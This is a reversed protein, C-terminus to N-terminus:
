DTGRVVVRRYLAAGGGECQREFGALFDQSGRNLRALIDGGEAEEEILVWGAHRGPDTLSDAWTRGLGEHVYQRLTMGVRATEHMYPALSAMSALIPAQDYHEMMCETLRQRGVENPRDRQAELVMPARGSLPPTEVLAILVVAAAALTRHRPLLGIGVGVFAAVAMTLPVMYRVRFPHGTWFAFLPLAVGATLAFLMLLHPSERTRVMTMVSAIAGVVGITLMADGNVRRLGSWVADLVAAPNHYMSPDVEFFGGTVLWSGVTLRSLMMFALVAAAPYVALRLAAAAARVPSVGTRILTVAALAVTAATIPWAEYRTLCALALVLGGPWAAGRGQDAIWTLTLATGLLCLGMLLSETMPTSQLYLVDPHAAFVACAAWGALPSRTTSTVIKWLSVAGVVFGTMSFAVASLGTRYLADVQVPLLNLLHPLPLWVAGIQMWGPSLSDLIRRAVVLHAKADYHSLTLNQVYYAGAAALGIGVALPTVWRQQRAYRCPSGHASYTYRQDRDLDRLHRSPDTM